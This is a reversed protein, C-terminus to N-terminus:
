PLGSGLIDLLEGDGGSRGGRGWVALWGRLVLAAPTRRLTLALLTLLTTDIWGRDAVRRLPSLEHVVM